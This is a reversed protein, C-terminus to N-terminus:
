EQIPDTEPILFPKGTRHKNFAEHLGCYSKYLEDKDIDFQMTEVSRKALLDWAADVILTCCIDCAAWDNYSDFIADHDPFPYTFTFDEAPFVWRPNPSSCFDCRM